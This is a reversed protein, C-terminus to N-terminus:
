PQAASAVVMEVTVHAVGTAANYQSDVTRTDPLRARVVERITDTIVVGESVITVSEVEAGALWEALKRKADAEAAMVAARERWAPNTATAPALGFGEAVIRVAGSGAPPSTIPPM